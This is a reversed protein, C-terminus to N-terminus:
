VNNKVLNLIETDAESVSLELDAGTKADAPSPTDRVVNASTDDKPQAFPGTTEDQTVLSRRPLRRTISSAPERVAVGGVPAQFSELSMPKPQKAPTLKKSKGAPPATKKKVGEEYIILSLCELYRMWDEKPSSSSTASHITM